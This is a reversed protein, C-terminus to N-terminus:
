GRLRARAGKELQEIIRAEAEAVEADNLTRDLSRFTLSFACSKHGPPVGQGRFLDFLEVGVLLPGGALRILELLDSVAVREEVMVALDRRVAPFRPLPMVRLFDGEVAQLFGELDLEALFVPVRVEFRRAVRPHLEGMTGLRIRKCDIAATRGPHLVDRGAIRPFRIGQLNIRELLEEIVGKLDHFELQASAESWQRPWRPGAMAIALMEREHPLDAQRPLYVRGVEFLRLGPEDPRLNTAVCEMLSPILSTRLIEQDPTMPNALRLADLAGTEAGSAMKDLLRRGTLSYTIVEQLGCGVLVDRVREILFRMRQPPHDPLPGALTTTPIQDYGVLRAVEEVLDAPLQIDSRHEPPRVLLAQGEERCDFGLRELVGRIQAPTLAIGLVRRVEGPTLRLTIPDRRGPYVDLVGRAAKGGCLEVMLKTARRLALITLAPQLGKDFRISAETRLRLARSTRRISTPNFNASELLVLKTRETVETESGGMIGALAVPREADAIVLMEPALPRVIGDLTRLSEGPRPRRVVIRRGLLTEYDFAHLPQGYELMVYNTIDVITNIPRVGAALLRGQLWSPSPAVTINQIVSASYRPCLDPALIEVQANKRVDPGQEPYTLDPLRLSQETLAAVERAVGLVGLCDPRNPTIELDLITDGLVEALPQGIKAEGPLILVGEHADSLGLEKESCLVGRSEMGHIRAVEVVSREGSYAELVRAGVPAYPVKDGARLNSAGTVVTVREGPLEITALALSEAAPHPMLSGIRGVVIGPWGDGRQEIGGVETGSMTLLHALEKAPLVLDVYESLWKLSVRM